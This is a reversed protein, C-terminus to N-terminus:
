SAEVSLREPAIPVLCTRCVIQGLPNRWTAGGCDPCPPTPPANVIRLSPIAPTELMDGPTGDPAEPQPVVGSNMALSALHMVRIDLPSSQDQIVPQTDPQAPASLESSNIGEEELSADQMAPYSNLLQAEEEAAAAAMELDYTVGAEIAAQATTTCGCNECTYSTAILKASKCSPCRPKRRGGWSNAREPAEVADPADFLPTPGLYIVTEDFNKISDRVILQREELKILHAGAAQEKVGTRRAIFARPINRLGQENREHTNDTLERRLALYALKEPAGMKDNSVAMFQDELARERRLNALSTEAIRRCDKEKRLEERLRENEHRLSAYNPCAGCTISTKGLSADQMAPCSDQSEPMVPVAPPAWMPWVEALAQLEDVTHGAALWDYVDGKVPLGPLRLVRVSAAAGYLDAAVEAAHRQGIRSEHPKDPKEPDNDPLIIVHRGQLYDRAGPTNPWKLAGGANTTAVLSRGALEDACKEGEVIYVPQAPDADLLEPLRYLVPALGDLGDLWDGAGDPRQQIFTKGSGNGVRLVRFRESGDANRYLHIRDPTM